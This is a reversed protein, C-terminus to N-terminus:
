RDGRDEIDVADAYRSDEGLSESEGDWENLEGGTPYSACERLWYRWPELGDLNKRDVAEAEIRTAIAADGARWPADETPRGISPHGLWTPIQWSDITLSAAFARIAVAAELNKKVSEEWAAVALLGARAEEVFPGLTVVYNTLPPSPGTGAICARALTDEASMASSVRMGYVRPRSRFTYALSGVIGGARGHLIKEEEDLLAAFSSPGSVNGITSASSVWAIANGGSDLATIASKVIKVEQLYAHLLIQQIDELRREADVPLVSVIPCVWAPGPAARREVGFGIATALRGTLTSKGFGRGALWLLWRKGSLFFGDITHLSFPSLAPFNLGSGALRSEQYLVWGFPGPAMEAAESRVAQWDPAGDDTAESARKSRHITPAPGDNAAAGARVVDLMTLSITSDHRPASGDMSTERQPLLGGSVAVVDQSRVGEPAEEGKERGSGGAGLDGADGGRDTDVQAGPSRQATSDVVGQEARDDRVEGTTTQWRSGARGEDGHAMEIGGSVPGMAARDSQANDHPLASAGYDARAQERSASERPHARAGDQVQGDRAEKARREAAECAERVEADAERMVELDRGAELWARGQQRIGLASALSKPIALGARLNELLLSRAEPSIM